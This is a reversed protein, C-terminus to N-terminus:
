YKSGVPIGYFYNYIHDEIQVNKADTEHLLMRRHGDDDYKKRKASPQFLDCTVYERIKGKQFNGSKFLTMFANKEAKCENKLAFLKDYFVKKNGFKIQKWQEKLQFQQYNKQEFSLSFDARITELGRKYNGFVEAECQSLEKRLNSVKAELDQDLEEFRTLLDNKDNQEVAVPEPEKQLCDIINPNQKFRKEFLVTMLFRDIILMYQILLWVELFHRPKPKAKLHKIKPDVIKFYLLVQM